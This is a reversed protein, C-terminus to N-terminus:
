ASKSRRQQIRKKPPNKLPKSPPLKSAKGSVKRPATRSTNESANKPVNRATQPDSPDIILRMARDILADRDVEGLSSM